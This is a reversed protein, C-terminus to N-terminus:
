GSNRKRLRILGNVVKMVVPRFPRMWLWIRAIFRYFFNGMSLNKGKRVMSIMIGLVRDRDIPGEIETQNDGLMYLGNEKVKYVRHLVLIDDLSRRYLLIDGRRVLKDGIPAVTAVDRGSAFLPSMSGGTPKFRVWKGVKLAEEITLTENSDNEKM